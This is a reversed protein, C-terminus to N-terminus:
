KMPVKFKKNSYGASTHSGMGLRRKGTVPAAISPKYGHDPYVTVHSANSPSSSQSSVAPRELYRPLRDGTSSVLRATAPM